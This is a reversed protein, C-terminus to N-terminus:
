IITKEGRSFISCRYNQWGSYRVEPFRTGQKNLDKCSGAIRRIDETPKM